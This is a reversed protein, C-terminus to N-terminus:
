SGLAILTCCVALTLSVPSWIREIRSRSVLNALTGLSFYGVLVWMAIAGAGPLGHADVVRASALVYVVMVPYIFLANVGSAARLGDPLRGVHRGGWAAQGVPAGLALAAQFVGLVLLLAVVLYAAATVGPFMAAAAPQPVSAPRAELGPAGTV